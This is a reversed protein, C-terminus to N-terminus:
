QTISTVANITFGTVAKNVCGGTNSPAIDAIGEGKGGGNVTLYGVGFTFQVKYSIPAPGGSFSATGVATGTGCILNTYTGSSSVGVNLTKSGKLCTASGSFAFSGSGGTKPPAPIPTLSTTKGKLSCTYSTAAHAPMVGIVVTTIAIALFTSVLPKRSRAKM